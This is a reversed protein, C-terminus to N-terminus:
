FSHDPVGLPRELQKCMPRGQHPHLFLYFIPACSFYSSLLTLNLQLFIEMVCLLVALFLLFSLGDSVELHCQM